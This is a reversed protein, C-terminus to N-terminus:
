IFERVDPSITDIFIIEGNETFTIYGLDFLSDINRSLLFGNNPDYAEVDNSIFFPKIHSAILVPYALKEVM